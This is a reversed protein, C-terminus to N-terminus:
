KTIIPDRNGAPVVYLVVVAREGIAELCDIASSLAVRGYGQALDRRHVEQVQELHAALPARLHEPLVRIRDKAGTGRRVVLSHSEFDLDKVRLRLAEVLRLGSGYLLGAVLAPPERLQSLVAKVEARTLVVPLRAPKRAREVQGLDALPLNLVRRYLFLLAALTQNQTSAAVKCEM